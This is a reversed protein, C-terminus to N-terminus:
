FHGDVLAKNWLLKGVVEVSQRAECVPLNGTSRQVTVVERTGKCDLLMAFVFPRAYANETPVYTGALRITQGLWEDCGAALSPRSAMAFLFFVGAVVLRLAM